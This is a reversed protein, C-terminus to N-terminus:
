SCNTSGHMCSESPIGITLISLLIVLLAQDSCLIWGAGRQRQVLNQNAWVEKKCLDGLFFRVQSNEFGKRIDFVNVAYGKELLHEVMHQGLFGSGGIVTCTKSAQFSLCLCLLSLLLSFVLLTFVHLQWVLASSSWCQIPFFSGGLNVLFMILLLYGLM